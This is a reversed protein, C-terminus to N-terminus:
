NSAQGNVKVLSAITFILVCSVELWVRTGLIKFTDLFAVPRAIEVRNRLPSTVRRFIFEVILGTVLIAALWGFMGVTQVFNHGSFVTAISSVYNTLASPLSVTNVIIADGFGSVWQMILATMSQQSVSVPTTQGVSEQLLDILSVLAQTQTADMKSVLSNISESQLSLPVDVSQSSAEATTNVCSTLLLVLFTYSLSKLIEKL